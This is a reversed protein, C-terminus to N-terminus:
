VQKPVSYANTNQRAMLASAAPNDVLTASAADYRLKEGTRLAINGLHLVSHSSQAAMLDANPRKRSRLCDIFNQQHEPDPHRGYRQQSVHGSSSFAQWGGGHRGVLMMEKSGYFEIRTANQLWQPFKDHHRIEGPTKRMANAFYAGEM